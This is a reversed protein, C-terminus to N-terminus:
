HLPLLPKGYAHLLIPADTFPCSSLEGELVARAAQVVVPPAAQPQSRPLVGPM